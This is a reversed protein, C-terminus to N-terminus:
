ASGRATFSGALATSSKRARRRATCSAFSSAEVPHPWRQVTVSNSNSDSDSDSNSNSNSDLVKQRAAPRHMLRLQGGGGALAGCPFYTKISRSQWTSHKPLCPRGLPSIVTARAAVNATAASAAHRSVTSVARRSVPPSEYQYSYIRKLPHIPM